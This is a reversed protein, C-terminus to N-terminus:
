LCADFLRNAAIRIGEPIDHQRMLAQDRMDNEPHRPVSRVRFVKALVNEDLDILIQPSEPPFAFEGGPYAPDGVVGADIM